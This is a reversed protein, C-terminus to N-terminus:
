RERGIMAVPEGKSMAPTGVVYLVAGAFPARVDGARRGFFDTVYGIVSGEGVTHGREVLPYWIGTEPSTLVQTRELYIPREVMEVPGPLMRLYRLLRSVGMENRQIMEEAPVGLYGTETTIAPKGRVHATNQTYISAKPDRPRNTDVVIHDHGWALAMERGISDVRASLGLKNWYTYPRLSENGDGAHMDVLYDSKDIVENTIAYAIRDSVTGEARGPYVRNLNKGDIPSYYITRKLYSPMNAVHVLIVAGRLQAPDLAARVRQLAIIPAVESGHTGAVLALTPGATAGRVVTIPVRTGSDGAAPVELFGSVKEGARAVIPGVRLVGPSQAQTSLPCGGFALAVAAASVLRSVPVM